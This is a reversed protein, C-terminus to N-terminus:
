RREVVAALKDLSESWGQEMGALAEAAEPMAQLVVAEVTVVTRGDQTAFTVTTVDELFARGEADPVVAWFVLREPPAVTRFLARCPYLTGDPGRMDLNAAGGPRLDVTVHPATFHQPAWWRALMRPDTWAQWVLDRPADFRRVLKVVKPTDAFRPVLHLVLRDITEGWGGHFGMAVHIDYSAQTTHSWRVTLRTHRPGVEEFTVTCTARVPEGDPGDPFTDGLVLMRPRDLLEFTSHTPYVNGQADRMETRLAGGPRVDMELVTTTMGQPGWWHPLHEPKTWADWVLARPAGIVRSLVLDLDGTSAAHTATM